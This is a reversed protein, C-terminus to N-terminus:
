STMCSCSILLFLSFFVFFGLVSFFSVSYVVLVAVIKHRNEHGNNAIFSPHGGFSTVVKKRRATEWETFPWKM